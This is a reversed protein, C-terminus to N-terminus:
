QQTFMSLLFLNIQIVMEVDRNWEKQCKGQCIPCPRKMAYAGCELCTQTCQGLLWNCWCSCIFMAPSFDRELFPLLKIWTVSPLYEVSMIFLFRHSFIEFYKWWFKMVQWMHTIKTSIRCLQPPKRSFSKHIGTEAGWVARPKNESHLGTAYAWRSQM